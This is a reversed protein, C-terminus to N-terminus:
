RGLCVVRCYAREEPLPLTRETWAGGPTRENVNESRSQTQTMAHIRKPDVLGIVRPRKGEGEVAVDSVGAEERIIQEDDPAPTWVRRDPPPSGSPPFGSGPHPRIVMNGATDSTAILSPSGGISVAWGQYMPCGFQARPGTPDVQYINGSVPECCVAVLFHGNEADYAVDTADNVELPEPHARPIRAVERPASTQGGVWLVIETETQQVGVWTTPPTREDPSAGTTTPTPGSGTPSGACASLVLAALLATRSSRARLSGGHPM